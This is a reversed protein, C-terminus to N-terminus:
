VQSTQRVEELGELLEDLCVFSGQGFGGDIEVGVCEYVLIDVEDDAILWCGLVKGGFKVDVM